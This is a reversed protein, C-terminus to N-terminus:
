LFGSLNKGADNDPRQFWQQTETKKDNKLRSILGQEINM